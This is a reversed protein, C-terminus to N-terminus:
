EGSPRASRVAPVVGIVGAFGRAPSRMATRSLPLDPASMRSPWIASRSAELPRAWNTPIWLFPLAAVGQSGSSRSRSLRSASRTRVPVASQPLQVDHLRLSACRRSAVAVVVTTTAEVAKSSRALFHAWSTPRGFARTSMTWCGIPPLVGFVRSCHASLEISPRM